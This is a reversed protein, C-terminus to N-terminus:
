RSSVCFYRAASCSCVGVTNFWSGVFYECVKVLVTKTDICMIKCMLLYEFIKLIYSLCNYLM